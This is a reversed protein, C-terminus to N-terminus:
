NSRELADRVLARLQAPDFPKDLCTNGTGKLFARSSATGVGGSMFVIRALLDPRQEALTNYFAIGSMEPMTLDCLILDFDTGAAIQTLAERGDSAVSVEHAGGLLRQFVRLIAAEDDIVLIRGRTSAESEARPAASQLRAETPNALATLDRVVHKIREAGARAEELVSFLTPVAAAQETAFDLNAIIVTLPNNIEHAVKEALAEISRAADISGSM